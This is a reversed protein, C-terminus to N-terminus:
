TSELRRLPCLGVAPNQLEAKQHARAGATVSAVDLAPSRWEAASQWPLLLAVDAYMLPGKGGLVDWSEVIGHYVYVVNPYM